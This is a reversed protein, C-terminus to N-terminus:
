LLVTCNPATCYLATCRQTFACRGMQFAGRKLMTGEREEKSTACKRMSRHNDRWWEQEPNEFEDGNELRIKGKLKEEVGAIRGELVHHKAGRWNVYRKRGDLKLETTNRGTRECTMRDQQRVTKISVTKGVDEHHFLPGHNTVVGKEYGLKTCVTTAGDNNDWFSRQGGTGCLPHWGPVEFEAAPNQFGLGNDLKVTGMFASQKNNEVSVIKGKCDEHAAQGWRVLATWEVGDVWTRNNEIQVTKNVDERSFAADKKKKVYLQVFGKPYSTLRVDYDPCSGAVRLEVFCFKPAHTSHVRGHNTHTHTSTLSQAKGNAHLSVQGGHVGEAYFQIPVRQGTKNCKFEVISSSSILDSKNSASMGFWEQPGTKVPVLCGDANLETLNKDCPACGRTGCREGTMYNPRSLEEDATDKNEGNPIAKQTIHQQTLDLDVFKSKTSCVVKGSQM